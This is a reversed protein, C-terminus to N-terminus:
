RKRGPGSLSGDQVSGRGVATVSALILGLGAFASPHLRESLVLWGWFVGSVPIIYTVLSLRTAGIQPLLRYYIIYAVATGLLGLAALSALAPLTPTLTWPRDFGLSLPAILLSGGIMQGTALILPREGSLKKGYVVAVAYSAAAGAMALQGLIHSGLGALVSPGMVLVVGSLGLVLGLGKRPSFREDGTVIHAITVTFLPMLSNLIAALGAEIYQEGWSILSYPIAGNFLGMVLFSLWVPGPSPMKLGRHRAVAYLAAGALCTRVLVITLPPVTPLAVKIFLFSAGWIIGLLFLSGFQRVTM